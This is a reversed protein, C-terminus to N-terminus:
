IMCGMGHWELSAACVALVQQQQCSPSRLRRRTNGDSHEMLDDLAGVEVQRFLFCVINPCDFRLFALLTFPLYAEYDYLVSCTAKGHLHGIGLTYGGMVLVIRSAFPYRQM